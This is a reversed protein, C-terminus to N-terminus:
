LSEDIFSEIDIIHIEDFSKTGHKFSYHSIDILSQKSSEMLGFGRLRTEEIRLLFGQVMLFTWIFSVKTFKDMLSLLSAREMNKQIKANAKM